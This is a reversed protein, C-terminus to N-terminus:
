VLYEYTNYGMTKVKLEEEESNNFRKGNEKNKTQGASKQNKNENYSITVKVAAAQIGAQSLNQYLQNMNNEVLAKVEQTEVEMMATLVDEVVSLSIKVQGLNGPEVKFTMTGAERREIFNSLEKILEFSKIIQTQNSFSPKFEGKNVSFVDNAKFASDFAATNNEKFFSEKGKVAESTNSTQELNKDGNESETNDSATNSNITTNPKKVESVVHSEFSAKSLNGANIKQDSKIIINKHDHREGKDHKDNFAHNESGTKIEAFEKKGSANVDNEKGTNKFDKVSLDEKTAIVPQEKGVSEVKTTNSSMKIKDFLSNVADVITKGNQGSSHTSEEKGATSIRDASVENQINLKFKTSNEIGSKTHGISLDKLKFSEKFLNLDDKLQERMSANSIERVPKNINTNLEVTKEPTQKLTEQTKLEVNSTTNKAEVVPKITDNTSVTQKDTTNLNKGDNLTFTKEDVRNEVIEVPKRVIQEIANKIASLDVNRSGTIDISNADLSKLTELSSSISTFLEKSRANDPSVPQGNKFILVQQGSKNDIGNQKEFGQQSSLLDLVSVRKTSVLLNKSSSEKETKLESAKIFDSLNVYKKPTSKVDDGKAEANIAETGTDIKGPQTEGKFNIVVKEANNTSISVADKVATYATEKVIGFASKNNKFDNQIVEGDVFLNNLKNTSDHKMDQLEVVEITANVKIVQKPDVTKEQQTAPISSAPEKEKLPTTPESSKLLVEGSSEKVTIVPKQLSNEEVKEPQVKKTNDSSVLENEGSNIVPKTGKVISELEAELKPTVSKISAEKQNEIESVVPQPTSSVKVEKLNAPQANKLESSNISTLSENEQTNLVPKIEPAIESQETTSPTIKSKDQNTNEVIKTINNDVSETQLKGSVADAKESLVIIPNISSTEDTIKQPNVPVTKNEGQKVQKVSVAKQKDVNATVPIQVEKELATKDKAFETGLAFLNIIVAKEGTKLVVNVNENNNFKDLIFSLGDNIEPATPKTGEGQFVTKEEPEVVKGAEGTGMLKYILSILEHADLEVNESSNLANGQTKDGTVAKIVDEIAINSPLTFVVSDESSNKLVSLEIAQVPQSQPNIFKPTDAIPEAELVFKVIDTFLHKPQELAPSTYTFIGKDIVPNKLFLPNFIM